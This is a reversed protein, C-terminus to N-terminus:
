VNEHLITYNYEKGENLEKWIRGVERHVWTEKVFCM